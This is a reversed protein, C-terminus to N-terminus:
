LNMSHGTKDNLLTVDFDRKQKNWRCMVGKGSDHMIMFGVAKGFNLGSEPPMQYGLKTPEDSGEILARVVVAERSIGIFDIRWHDVRADETWHSDEDAGGKAVAVVSEFDCTNSRLIAGRPIKESYNDTYVFADKLADKPLECRSLLTDYEHLSYVYDNKFCEKFYSTMQNAFMVLAIVGFAVAGRDINVLGSRGREVEDRHHAEWTLRTIAESLSSCHMRNALEQLCDKTEQSISLNLQM